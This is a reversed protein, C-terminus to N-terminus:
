GKVIPHRLRLEDALAEVLNNERATGSPTISWNCHPHTAISYVRVEGLVIRWRGRTGGSDRLLASLFLDRLDDRSMTM